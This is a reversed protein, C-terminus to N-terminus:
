RESCIVTGLGYEYTDELLKVLRKLASKQVSHENENDCLSSVTLRLFLKM